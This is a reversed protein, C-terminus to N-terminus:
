SSAGALQDPLAFDRGRDYAPFACAVEGCVVSCGCGSQRWYHEGAAEGVAGHVLNRDYSSRIRLCSLCRLAFSCSPQALLSSRGQGRSGGGLARGFAAIYNSASYLSFVLGFGLLAGAGGRNRIVGEVPGRFASVASRPGLHGILSLIANSTEPYTGLLGFLAVIVLFAPFVALMAYYTLAAAWDGLHLSRFQSILYVLTRWIERM